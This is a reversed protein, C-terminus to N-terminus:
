RDILRQSCESYLAPLALPVEQHLLEVGENSFAPLLLVVDRQHRQPACSRTRVVYRSCRGETASARVLALRAGGIAVSWRDKVHCGATRRHAM